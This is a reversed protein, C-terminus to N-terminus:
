FRIGLALTANTTEVGAVDGHVWHYTAEIAVNPTLAYGLMGKAGLTWDDERDPEAGRDIRANNYYSGLGIGAYLSQGLPVRESYLVGVSDIRSGNGDTHSYDFDLWPVGAFGMAPASLGLSGYIGTDATADRSEDDILYSAGAFIAIAHDQASAGLACASLLVAARFRRM